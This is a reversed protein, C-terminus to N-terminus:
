FNFTPAFPFRILLDGPLGQPRSRRYAVAQIQRAFGPLNRPHFEDLGPTSTSIGSRSTLNILRILGTVAMSLSRLAETSEALNGAHQSVEYTIQISRKLKDILDNIDPIHAEVRTSNRLRCGALYLGHKLANTNGPQGGRKRKQSIIGPQHLKPAEAPSQAM